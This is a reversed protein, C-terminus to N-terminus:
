VCYLESEYHAKTIAAIKDYEEQTILKMSLLMKLMNISYVYSANNIDKM